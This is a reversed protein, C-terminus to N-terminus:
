SRYSPFFQTNKDFDGNISRISVLENYKEYNFIKKGFSFYTNSNKNFARKFKFLNDESSGLGGGLHFKKYGNECGWCAAEYLLFNTASTRNFEKNSASLHYHMIDSGFLIMAMSIIKEEYVAYFIMCNYKLDKLISRYFKSEFYYYDKANDLKMTDNYMPIFSEFLDLSRGWFIEVGIKEAKRIVNRNKSSMEKWIQKKSELNITITNGLDIVEYISRNMEVNRINPHFRVIESVINSKICYNTYEDNLKKISNENKEGEFLFGGYGYPTSFDYLVGEEVINTFHKENSIDRKMVINIVRMSNDEYYILIPEGDGHLKFGKVYGSLYYVDYEKFSKVVGDWEESKNLTIIELLISGGKM